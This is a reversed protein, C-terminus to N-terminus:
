AVIEEEDNSEALFAALVPTDAVDVFLREFIHPAYCRIRSGLRTVYYGISVKPVNPVKNPNVKIFKVGNEDERVKGILKAVEDINDETIQVAEINFPKRIYTIFDM